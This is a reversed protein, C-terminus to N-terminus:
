WSYCPCWLSPDNKFLLYMYKYGYPWRAVFWSQVLHLWTTGISTYGVELPARGQDVSATTVIGNVPNKSAVEITDSWELYGDSDGPGGIFKASFPHPLDALAENNLKKASDRFPGVGVEIRCFLVQGLGIATHVQSFREADCLDYRRHYIQMLMDLYWQAYFGSNMKSVLDCLFSAMEQDKILENVRDQMAQQVTSFM